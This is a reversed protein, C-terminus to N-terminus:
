SLISVSPKDLVIDLRDVDRARMLRMLSWISFSLEFLPM